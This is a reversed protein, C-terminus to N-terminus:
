DPPDFLPDGGEEPVEEIFGPLPDCNCDEEASNCIGTCAWYKTKPDIDLDRGCMSCIPLAQEENTDVSM